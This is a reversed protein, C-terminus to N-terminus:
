FLGGRGVGGFELKLVGSDPCTSISRVSNYLRIRFYRQKVNRTAYAGYSTQEYRQREGGSIFVGATFAYPSITEGGRCNTIKADENFLRFTAGVAYM